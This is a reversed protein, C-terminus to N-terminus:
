EKEMTCQLPHSHKRALLMAQDIKTEAIEHTYIGAVGVGEHHVMMMIHSADQHNRKFVKELIFIVFDMPTFDDNLLLVRYMPPRKLRPKTQIALDSDTQNFPAITHDNRVNVLSDM